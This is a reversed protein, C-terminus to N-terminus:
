VSNIQSPTRVPAHLSVFSQELVYARLCNHLYLRHQILSGRILSCMPYAFWKENGLVLKWIEKMTLSVFMPYAFGPYAFWMPYVFWKENGLSVSTYSCIRSLRVVEFLHVM